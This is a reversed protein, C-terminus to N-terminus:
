FLQSSDQHHRDDNRGEFVENCRKFVAQEIAKSAERNIPCFLSLSRNGINKTPYLLRYSGDLKVYIAISTLYINDDVVVSAFGILGRDPKVPTINVESVVM